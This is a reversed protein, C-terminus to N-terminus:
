VSFLIQYVFDTTFIDTTVFYLQTYQMKQKYHNTKGNTANFDRRQKLAANLPPTLPQILIICTLRPQALAPHSDKGGGAMHHSLTIARGM